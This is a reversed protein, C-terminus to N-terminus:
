AAKDKAEALAQENLPCPNATCRNPILVLARAVPVRCRPCTLTDAPATM